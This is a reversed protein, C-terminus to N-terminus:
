TGCAYVHVCLWGSPCAICADVCPGGHTVSLIVDYDEYGGAMQRLQYYTFKNLGVEGAIPVGPLLMQMASSAADTAVLISYTGMGRGPEAAVALWLKGPWHCGGEAEAATANLRLSSAARSRLGWSHATANPYPYRCSLYLEPKSGALPTLTVLLDEAASAWNVQFYDTGNAAVTGRMPTGLQLEQQGTSLAAILTFGGADYGYVGIFAECGQPDTCYKPDGTRHPNTQNPTTIQTLTNTYNQHLPQPCLTASLRM